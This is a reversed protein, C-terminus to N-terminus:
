KCDTAMIVQIRKSEAARATEDMVEREGASNMHSIRIGADLGVKAQKARACNEIKAKVIKEEEAKRKAAEADAAQKKKAELEKDVGVGKAASAPLAPSASTAQDTNASSDQAAPKVPPTLKLGPRKLINKEQIEPPPARDSFVKRGDKDLWQWQAAAFPSSCILGVVFLNKLMTM